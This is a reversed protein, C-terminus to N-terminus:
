SDSVSKSKLAVRRISATDEEKRDVERGVVRELRRLHVEGGANVM